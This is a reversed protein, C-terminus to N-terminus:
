EARSFALCLVEELKSFNVFPRIQASLHLGGADKAVSEIKGVALGKPFMGGSGSTLVTEEVNVVLNLDLYTMKLDQTGNGAAVGQGRTQDTLVSVRSDPDILLIARSTSHGAEFIRGVLGEPVIVIMDKKIGQAKGKDLVLTRRWPSLDSGIVRAAITRGSVESRFDLLKKLRANEKKTEDLQILQSQLEAVQNKFRGEERYTTWFDVVSEGMRAFTRAITHTAELVPKLATLSTQHVPESIQPNQLVVFLVPFLIGLFLTSRKFRM